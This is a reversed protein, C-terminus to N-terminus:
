WATLSRLRESEETVLARVERPDDCVRILSLDREDITGRGIMEERLWDIMPDWYGDGVLAVPFHRIKGTQSLTLAEFLEDLTGFGGPMVVFAQAYRVFMVKRVFFHEFTLSIDLYPNPAQEHPLEINCGISQAGVDQAGRNAAEMMGPGGGTIISFGARGLTRAVERALHYNPDSEPTRASGFISVARQVEALASFGMRFEAEIRGIREDDHEAGLPVDAGVGLLLDEEFNSAFLPLDSRDSPVHTGYGAITSM